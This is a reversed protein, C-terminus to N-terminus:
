RLHRKAIAGYYKPRLNVRIQEIKERL